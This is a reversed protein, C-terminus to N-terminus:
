LCQYVLVVFASLGGLVSSLSQQYLAHLYDWLLYDLYRVCGKEHERKDRKGTGKGHKEDQGRVRMMCNRSPDTGGTMSCWRIIVAIADAENVGMYM